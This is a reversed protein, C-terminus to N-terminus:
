VQVGDTHTHTVTLVHGHTRALQRAGARRRKCAHVRGPVLARGPNTCRPSLHPHIHYFAQKFLSPALTPVFLPPRRSSVSRSATQCFCALLTSLFRTRSLSVPLLTRIISPPLSLSDIHHHSLLCISLSLSLLPALRSSRRRRFSEAPGCLM